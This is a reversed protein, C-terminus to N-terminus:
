EKITLVISGHGLKSKRSKNRDAQPALLKILDEYDISLEVPVVRGLKRSYTTSKYRARSM